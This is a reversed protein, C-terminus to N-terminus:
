LDRPCSAADSVAGKMPYLDHGSEVIWREPLFEDARKWYKPSRHMEIHVMWVMAEDTPCVNDKDDLVSVNLKGRRSCGAPTFLRLSEKIVALTYTLSEIIQPSNELLSPAATTDTGLVKDHEARLLSLIEPNASLLYFIYYITSSTSDHGAFVFLRIQRIAFTRLEKELEHPKAGKDGHLHAQLVLDIVAKGGSTARFPKTSRSVNTSNAASIGIWRGDM